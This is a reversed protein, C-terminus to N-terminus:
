PVIRGLRSVSQGNTLRNNTHTARRWVRRGQRTSAPPLIRREGRQGQRGRQSLSLCAAPMRVRTVVCRVLWV